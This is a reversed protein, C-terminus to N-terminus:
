NERIRDVFLIWKWKKEEEKLLEKLMNREFNLQKIFLRRNIDKKNFMFSKILIWCDENLM